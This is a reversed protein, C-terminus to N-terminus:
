ANKNTFRNSRPESRPAPKVRPMIDNAFAGSADAQLYRRALLVPPGGTTNPM